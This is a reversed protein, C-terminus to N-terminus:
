SYNDFSFYSLSNITMKLPCNLPESLNWALLNVPALRLKNPNFNIFLRYLGTIRLSFPHHFRIKSWPWVNPVRKTGYASTSNLPRLLFNIHFSETFDFNKVLASLFESLCYKPRFSRTVSQHHCIIWWLLRFRNRLVLTLATVSQLAQSEHVIVRCKQGCDVWLFTLTKSRRVPWKPRM